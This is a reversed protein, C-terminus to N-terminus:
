AFAETLSRHFSHYSLVEALARRSDDGLRERLAAVEDTLTTPIGEPLLSSLRGRETDTARAYTELAQRAVPEPWPTALGALLHATQPAKSRTLHDLVQRNRTGVSCAALVEPRKSGTEVLADAWVTDGRAVAVQELLERVWPETLMGLTAAPPAGTFESWVALPAGAVVVALAARGDPLAGPPVPPLGDALAEADPVGPLEVRVHRRLPGSWGLLARLRDAMRSGRAGDPLRDLLSAARQRVSVARDALAVALFPEDDPGLRTGLVALHAARDKAKLTAWHESLSERVEAPQVRRAALLLDTASAAPLLPWDTRWTTLDREPAHAPDPAATSRPSGIPGHALLWAGREGLVPVVLDRPLLSGPSTLVVPLLQEPLRFGGATATHFWLRLLTRRQEHSFGSQSLLLGLLQAARPPVVPRAEEPAEPPLTRTSPTPTRGGRLLADLVAAAQLLATEAPVEPGSDTTPLLPCPPVPRRGTGVLAAGTLAHRWTALDGDLGPGRM